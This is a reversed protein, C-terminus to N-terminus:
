CAEKVQINSITAKCNRVAFGIFQKMHVPYGLGRLQELSVCLRDVGDKFADSEIVLNPWCFSVSFSFPKEYVKDAVVVEQLRIHNTPTEPYAYHYTVHCEYGNNEPESLEWPFIAEIRPEGDKETSLLFRVDPKNDNERHNHIEVSYAAHFKNEIGISSWVTGQDQLILESSNKTHTGSPDFTGDDNKIINASWSLTPFQTQFLTDLLFSSLKVKLENEDKFILIERGGLDFPPNKGWSAMKLSRRKREWASRNCIIVIKKDLAYAIGLEMFVNANEHTIDCIVLTADAIMREILDMKISSSEYYVEANVFSLGVHTEVHPNIHEKFLKKTDDDFQYIGMCTNNGAM